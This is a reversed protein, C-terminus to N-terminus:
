FPKICIFQRSDIALPLATPLSAYVIRTYKSDYPDEEWSDLLVDFASSLQVDRRDDLVFRYYTRGDSTPSLHLVETEYSSEVEEDEPTYPITVLERVISGVMLYYPREDSHKIKASETPISGLLPIFITDTPASIFWGDTIQLLGSKKIFVTKLNPYTLHTNKM